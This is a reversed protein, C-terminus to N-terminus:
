VIISLVTTQPAILTQPIESKTGATNNEGLQQM